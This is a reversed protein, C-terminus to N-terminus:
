SAVQIEDIRRDQVALDAFEDKTAILSTEQTKQAAARRQAVLDHRRLVSQALDGIRHIEQPSRSRDLMQQRGQRVLEALALLKTGSAATSPPTSSVDTAPPTVSAPPTASAPTAVPTTIAVPVASHAAIADFLSLQTM